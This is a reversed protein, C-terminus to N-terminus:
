KIICNEVVDFIGRPTIRIEPIVPLAMFSLTIFPDMNKSVGMEHAKRIMFELKKKVIEHGADSMLGMIPLELTNLIRGEQVLTYGGQTRILEKVALEMDKDNDGIVIINHSDHSVSSAIAGNTISFGKVVGVGVKGSATHREIAAIKNFTSNAEFYESGPIEEKIMKTIIQGDIMQIVPFLDKTIKLKLQERSFDHVNVTNKIKESCPKIKVEVKKDIKSGKYFVEQIQFEKLDNLVVLDAQYGPAIAGINSLGYCRAAQITAMKIAKIPPIGLSVAKKVSYNIHGMLKIEEIHKDDTCFCFGNTNVSSKVIGSVIAELNKAASGERILVTMGNRREKMAYEFDVCEHDTSIGALAYAALSEDSLFPAHGDLVKNQFLNLKEHMNADGNVVSLYDMVEGLGLIRKNDLYPRMIDANINCGNDDFETSPVCSPMMVYVNAPVDVTEDLIYDIGELGSVNASEHPDVIFTTTGHRAAEWILEGPTVLTSELHLHSDIFGPCVYKGKADYEQIGEYEGVGVIIGDVIAIDAEYIEETFVNVVNADKLVIDAKELKRTVKSRKKYDVVEM